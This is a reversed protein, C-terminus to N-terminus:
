EKDKEKVYIGLNKFGSYGFIIGCVFFIFSFNVAASIFALISALFATCINFLRMKM